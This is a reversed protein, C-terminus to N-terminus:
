FVKELHQFHKAEDKSAILIDDIYCFTFDLGQLVINMFRHFTKAANTLGFCVYTLEFEFLGLPTYGHLYM